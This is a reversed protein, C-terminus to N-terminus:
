REGKGARLRLIEEKLAGVTARLDLAERERTRNERQLHFCRERWMSADVDQKAQHVERSDRGSERAVLFADALAARIAADDGDGFASRLGREFSRFDALGQSSLKRSRTM